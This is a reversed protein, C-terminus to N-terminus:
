MFTEYNYILAKRFVHATGLVTTKPLKNGDHKIIVIVIVVVIIIIVVLLMYFRLIVPNWSGAPCNYKEGGFRGCQSRTQRLRVWLTYSSDVRQIAPVFGVAWKWRISPEQINRCHLMFSCVLM